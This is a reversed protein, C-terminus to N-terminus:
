RLRNERFKDVIPAVGVSGKIYENKIRDERTMGSMRRLMKM